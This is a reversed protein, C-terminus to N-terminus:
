LELSSSTCIIDNTLKILGSCYKNTWCICGKLSHSAKYRSSKLSYIPCSYLTCRSAHTTTLVSWGWWTTRSRVFMNSLSGIMKRAKRFSVLTHGERRGQMRWRNSTQCRCALLASRIVRLRRSMMSMCRMLPIKWVSHKFVLRLLWTRIHAFLGWSGRRNSLWRESYRLCGVSLSNPCLTFIDASAAKRKSRPKHLKHTTSLM